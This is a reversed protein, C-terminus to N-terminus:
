VPLHEAFIGILIRDDHGKIPLSFHVRDRDWLRKGHWECRYTEGEYSVLRQEWAKANKKTNPSEPSIDVGLASFRAQVKKQDGGCILLADAFHDSLLGLLEVLWPLVDAYSGDFHHFRLSDALLLRPFARDSLAFFHDEPVLERTLVGRWFGAEDESVRLLHLAVHDHGADADREVTLWGSPWDLGTTRRPNAISGVLCSMARGGAARALAHAMGWSPESWAGNDQRVPQPVDDDEPEVSRCKDLLVQLRRRESHPLGGDPSYLADVLSISPLCETDYASTMLAVKRGDALPELLDALTDLARRLEADTLGRWDLAEEGLVMRYDDDPAGPM